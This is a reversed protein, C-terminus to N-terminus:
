RAGADVQCGADLKASEDVSASPAVGPVPKEQPHFSRAVAAYGRYPEDTLLLAMGAPAKDALAPVVLCAGAGSRSFSDTYRRNDLFSVHDHGAAELPAVDTFIAEADGRMEAQTLDALDKLTLPPPPDYFRPDAM